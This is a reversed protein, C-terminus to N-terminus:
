HFRLVIGSGAHLPGFPDNGFNGLEIFEIPTDEFQQLTVPPKRDYLEGLLNTKRLSRHAPANGCQFFTSDDFAIRGPYATARQAKPNPGKDLDLQFAVLAIM